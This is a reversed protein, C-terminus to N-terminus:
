TLSFAFSADSQITLPYFLDPPLKPLLGSTTAMDNELQDPLVQIFSVSLTHTFVQTDTPSQTPFSWTSFIGRKKAAVIYM